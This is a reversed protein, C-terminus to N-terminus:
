SPGTTSSAPAVAAAFAEVRDRVLERAHNLSTLDDFESGLCSLIPDWPGPEADLGDTPPPRRPTDLGAGARLQGFIGDAARYPWAVKLEFYAAAEDVGDVLRAPLPAAGNIFAARAFLERVFKPDTIVLGYLYSTACAEIVLWKEDHRLVDHSACLYTGCTERDYVGCDRGDFGDNQIPHVLCGVRSQAPALEDLDLLGLFPCNPLDSLLKADPDTTEWRARFSQLSAVDTVEADRHYAQTRRALLEPTDHGDSDSRNYMGCCAGCSKKGDPQCLVTPVALKM